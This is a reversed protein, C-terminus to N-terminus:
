KDLIMKIPQQAIHPHSTGPYIKLKKIVMRGLPGKPLMGKVANRIIREPNKKRLNKISISKIGGVYGTHKWYIKHDEKKNSLLIKECNIIIIFDGTDIHPSYFPHHKGRLIPVIKSALRGLILNEANIIYWKRLVPLTIM